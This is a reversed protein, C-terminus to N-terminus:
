IFEEPMSKGNVLQEVIEQAREKKINYKTTLINMMKKNDEEINRGKLFSVDYKFYPTETKM